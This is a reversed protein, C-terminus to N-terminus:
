IMGKERWQAAVAKGSFFRAGRTEGFTKLLRKKAEGLVPPREHLDHCDSVVVSGRTQALIRQAYLRETFHLLSSGNVQMPVAMSRLEELLKKDGASRYREVHALMPTYSTNGLLEAMERYVGGSEGSSRTLEVLLYHTGEYCLQGLEEWRAMGPRFAVEAGLMLKPLKQRQEEEMSSIAELLQEMAERRRHLFHPVSERDHSFHPTLAVCEVGQEAEAQLLRLSTEVDQAGDDMGPLIHTHLDITM